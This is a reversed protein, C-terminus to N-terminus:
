RPHAFPSFRKASFFDMPILTSDQNLMAIMMEALVPGFKFAHGSCGTFYVTNQHGPIYDVVFHTDASNTYLCTQTHIIEGAADPLVTQMLERLLTMLKEDVLFDRNQASVIKGTKHVSSKIGERGSIPLGYWGIGATGSGQYHIYIPFKGPRFEDPKKPKFFAYQEQSVKLDLQVGLGALLPGMWGGAALILKKAKIKKQAATLQVHKGEYNIGTVPTNEYFVAGHKKALKQLTKVSATANLMGTDRQYLGQTHAPLHFQPFRKSIEASDLVEHEVAQAKLSAICDSIRKGDHEDLDIGGTTVLLEEKSEDMIERWLPYARRSMQVYYPHDYSYRIIRSEGHSSGKTHALEFQELVAVSHGARSLMYAASSGLM